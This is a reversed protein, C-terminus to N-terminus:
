AGVDTDATISRKGTVIENVRQPPVGIGRALHDQSLGMPKIFDELLIEGPTVPEYRKMTRDGEHYDVIEVRSAGAATWVFCIRWRDNIRISCQGTRDGKLAELHNGPPIRLDELEGAVELQRLIRRAM